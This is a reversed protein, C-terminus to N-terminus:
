QETELISEKRYAKSSKKIIFEEGESIEASM